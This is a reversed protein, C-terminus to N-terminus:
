SRSIFRPNYSHTPTTKYTYTNSVPSPNCCTVMGLRQRLPLPSIAKAAVVRTWWVPPPLATRGRRRQNILVSRWGCTAYISNHPSATKRLLDVVCDPEWRYTPPHISHAAVGDTELPRCACGRTKSVLGALIKTVGGAEHLRSLTTPECVTLDAPWDTRPPRRQRRRTKRLRRAGRM